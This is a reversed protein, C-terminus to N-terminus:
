QFCTDGGAQMAPARKAAEPMRKAGPAIRREIEGFRSGAGERVIVLGFRKAKNAITKGCGTVGREYARLM